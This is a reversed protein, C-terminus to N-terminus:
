LSRRLPAAALAARGRCLPRDAGPPDPTWDAAPRIPAGLDIGGHGVQGRRYLRHAELLAPDFDLGTGACIRRLAVEPDHVFDEYHVLTSQQSVIQDVRARWFMLFQRVPDREGQLAPVLQPVMAEAWVLLRQQRMHRWHHLNAAADAPRGAIRADYHWLSCFSAYPNRLLGFGVTPHRTAFIGQKVLLVDASPAVEGPLLRDIQARPVKTEPWVRLLQSLRIQAATNPEYLDFVVHVRPHASLTRQMLTEGSRALSALHVIQLSETRSM